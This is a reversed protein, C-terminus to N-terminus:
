GFDGVAGPEGQEEGDEEGRDEDEPAVALLRLPRGLGAVANRGRAEEGRGVGVDLGVSCGGGGLAEVREEAAGLEGGDLAEADEEVLGALGDGGDVRLEQLLELGAGVEGDEQLQASEVDGGDGVRLPVRDRAHRAEGTAVADGGAVAVVLLEDGRLEAAYDVLLHLAVDYM